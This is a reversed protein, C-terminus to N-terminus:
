IFSNQKTKNKYNKHFSYMLNIKTTITSPAGKNDLIYASHARSNDKYKKRKCTNYGSLRFLCNKNTQKRQKTYRLLITM